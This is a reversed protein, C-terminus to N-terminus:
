FRESRSQTGALGINFPYQLTRERVYLLRPTFLSVRLVACLFGKAAASSM